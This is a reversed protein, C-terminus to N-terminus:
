GKRVRDALPLVTSMEDAWWAYELGNIYGQADLWLLLEGNSEGHEDVVIPMFPAPSPVGSAPLRTGEVRLNMMTAPGGVYEVGGVQRM